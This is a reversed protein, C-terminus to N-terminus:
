KAAQLNIRAVHWNLDGEFHMYWYGARDLMPTAERTYEVMQGDEGRAVIWAEVLFEGDVKEGVWSILMLQNHPTKPLEARAFGKAEALTSRTAWGFVGVLYPIGIPTNTSILLKKVTPVVRSDNNERELYLVTKADFDLRDGRKHITTECWCLDRPHDWNMERRVTYGLHVGLTEFFALEGATMDSYGSTTHWMNRRYTTVYGEFMRQLFHLENM